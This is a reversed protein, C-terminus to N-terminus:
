HKLNSGEAWRKVDTSNCIARLFIHNSSFILCAEVRVMKEAEQVVAVM